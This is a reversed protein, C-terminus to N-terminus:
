CYPPEGWLVSRWASQKSHDNPMGAEIELAWKAGDSVLARLSPIPQGHVGNIARREEDRSAGGSELWRVADIYGDEFLRLIDAAHLVDSAMERPYEERPTVEALHDHYPSLVTDAMSVFHLHSCGLEALVVANKYPQPMHCSDEVADLLDDESAFSKKVITPRPRWGLVRLRGSEAIKALPEDEATEALAQAFIGRISESFIGVCGRFRRRRQSFAAHSLRLMVRACDIGTALAAAVFAGSAPGLAMKMASPQWAGEAMREVYNPACQLAYAAGLNYMAFNACGAVTVTKIHPPLPPVAPLRDLGDVSGHLGADSVSLFRPEKLMQKPTIDKEPSILEAADSALKWLAVITYYVGWIVWGVPTLLWEALVFLVEEIYPVEM